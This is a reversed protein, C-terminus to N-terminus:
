LDFILKCPLNRKLSMQQLLQFFRVGGSSENHLTALLSQRSWSTRPGWPSNLVAEDIGTCLIYGAVFVDERSVGSRLANNEFM